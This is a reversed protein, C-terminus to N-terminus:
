PLVLPSSEAEATMADAHARLFDLFARGRKRGNNTQYEVRELFALVGLVDADRLTTMGARKSAAARFEDISQQVRGQIGAAIPNSPKTEYYLGSERTRYTRVLAGLAERVDYDVAGAAGLGAEALARVLFALLADNQRLFSDNVEIDLNPIQKPDAIAPKEHTRAERLYVCDLPCNVTEERGTGCCVGCIEGGVGPCVRRARRTECIKCTMLHRAVGMIARRCIRRDANAPGSLKQPASGRTRL